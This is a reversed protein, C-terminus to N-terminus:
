SDIPEVRFTTIEVGYRKALGILEVRLAEASLRDLEGTIEIGQGDSAAEDEM